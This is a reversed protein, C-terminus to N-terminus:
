KIRIDSNMTENIIELITNLNDSSFDGTIHRNMDKSNCELPIHYYAQLDAIVLSIPADQFHFERTAWVMENTSRNIRQPLGNGSLRAAEGQKLIMGQKLHSSSAFEVSGESVVVETQNLSNVTSESVELKTGIDNIVYDHDIIRFPHQPDHKIEFYVKGSIEVERCNDDYYTLSSYPALVVKTGDALIETYNGKESTLTCENRFAGSLTLVGVVAVSAAAGLVAMGYRIYKRRGYSIAARNQQATLLAIQQPSLGSKRIAKRYAADIDLKGKRFFRTVFHLEKNM